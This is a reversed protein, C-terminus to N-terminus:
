IVFLSYLILMLLRMRYVVYFSATPYLLNVCILVRTVKFNQIKSVLSLDACVKQVNETIVMLNSSKPTHNLKNQLRRVLKM